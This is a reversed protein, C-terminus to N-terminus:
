SQAINKLKLKKQLNDVKRPWLLFKSAPTKSSDAWLQDLSFTLYYYGQFDTKRTTHMKNNRRSHRDAGTLFLEIYYTVVMSAPM